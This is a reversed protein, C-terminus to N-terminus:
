TKHTLEENYGKLSPSVSSNAITALTGKDVEIQYIATDNAWWGSCCKTKFSVAKNNGVQVLEDRGYASDCIM